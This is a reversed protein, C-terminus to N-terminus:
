KALKWFILAVAALIVIASVIAAPLEKTSFKINM